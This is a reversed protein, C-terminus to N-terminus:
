RHVRPRGLRDACVAHDRWTECRCNSTEWVRKGTKVDYALVRGDGSGRFLLGDMYVAGRSVPQPTAPKYDEHTRWNQHCTAPDISFIDFQTTFILADNVKILGSNFGTYQGTDYTCLVKLKNVNSTNIQSLQSFRESTLTSTTARGTM